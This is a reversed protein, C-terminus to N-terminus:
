QDASAPLRSVAEALECAEALVEAAWDLAISWQGTASFAAMVEGIQPGRGLFAPALPLVPASILGARALGGHILSRGVRGNGDRLPHCVVFICFAALASNIPCNCASEAAMILHPWSNQQARPAYVTMRGSPDPHTQMRSAAYGVARGCLRGALEAIKDAALPRDALHRWSSLLHPEIASREFVRKVLRPHEPRRYRLSIAAARTELGFTDIFARSSNDLATIRAQLEPLARCEMLGAVAPVELISVSDTIDRVSLLTM